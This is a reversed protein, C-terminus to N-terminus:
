NLGHFNVPLDHFIVPLEWRWGPLREGLRAGGQGRMSKCQFSGCARGSEVATCTSGTSRSVSAGGSGWGWGGMGVFALHEHHAGVQLVCVRGGPARIRVLPPGLSPLVGRARRLPHV